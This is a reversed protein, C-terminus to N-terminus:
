WPRREDNHRLWRLQDNLRDLRAQLQDRQWGGLEGRRRQWRSMDYRINNLTQQARRAERRDLSGDDRGHEIRRQMWEIRRDLGWGSAGEDRGRDAHDGGRDHHDYPQAMTPAAAGIVAAALIALNVLKM